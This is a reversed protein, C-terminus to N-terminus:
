SEGISRHCHMRRFHRFPFIGVRAPYHCYPCPMKQLRRIPSWLLVIGCALWVAMLIYFPFPQVFLQVAEGAFCCLFWILYRKLIRKRAIQVNSFFENAASSM